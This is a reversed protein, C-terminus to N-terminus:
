EEGKTGQHRSAIRDMCEALMRDRETLGGAEHTTLTVHVIKYTNSWNPHHNLKEAELASRAMFGFAESFDAFQYTRTIAQGDDTERWAPLKRLAEMREQATLKRAM